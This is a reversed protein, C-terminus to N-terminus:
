LQRKNEAAIKDLIGNIFNSSNQGGYKKALEIAENISVAQPIDARCLLEYAAIQLIARDILAIRQFEWNASSKKIAEDITDRNQLYGKVLEKTYHTTSEAHNASAKILEELVANLDIDSIDKQFNLRYIIQLALERSLTRQRM